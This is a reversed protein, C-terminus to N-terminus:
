GCRDGQGTVVVLVVVGPADDGSWGSGESLTRRGPAPAAGDVRSSGQRGAATFGVAVQGPGVGSAKGGVDAKGSCRQAGIRRIQDSPQCWCGAGAGAVAAATADQDLRAPRGDRAPAHLLSPIFETPPHTPRRHSRRGVGQAPDYESSRGPGSPHDQDRREM